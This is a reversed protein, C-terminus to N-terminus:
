FALHEATAEVRLMEQIVNEYRLVPMEHRQTEITYSGDDHQATITFICDQHASFKVRDGFQFTNNM